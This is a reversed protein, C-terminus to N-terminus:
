LMTEKDEKDANKIGIDIMNAMIVPVTLEFCAELFKFLPGFISEIWHKKLYRLLKILDFRSGKLASKHPLCGVYVNYCLNYLIEIFFTKSFASSTVLSIIGYTVSASFNM